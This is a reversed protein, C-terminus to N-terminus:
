QGKMGILHFEVVMGYIVQTSGLRLECGNNSTKFIRVFCFLVVGERRLVETTDHLIYLNNVHCSSDWSFICKSGDHGSFQVRAVNQFM